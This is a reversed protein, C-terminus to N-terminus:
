NKTLVDYEDIDYKDMFDDLERKSLLLRHAIVVGGILASAIFVVGASTIIESIVTTIM